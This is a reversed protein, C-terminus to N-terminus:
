VEVPDVVPNPFGEVDDLRTDDNGLNLAYPSSVAGHGNGVIGVELGLVYISKPDVRARAQRREHFERLAFAIAEDANLPEPEIREENSM